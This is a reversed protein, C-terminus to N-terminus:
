CEKEVLRPAVKIPPKFRKAAVKVQESFSKNPRDLPEAFISPKIKAKVVQSIPSVPSKAKVKEVPICDEKVPSEAVFGKVVTPTEGFPSVPLAGAQEALFASGLTLPARPNSVAALLPIGLVPNAIRPTDVPFFPIIPTVVPPIVPPVVVVPPIVVPPVVVPPEVPKVKGVMNITIQACDSGGKGDSVTYTFVDQVKRGEALAQAVSNPQYIYTGDPKLTLTGYTGVIPQNVNAQEATSARLGGSAMPLCTPDDAGPRVAVVTLVDNRDRDGDKVDGLTNGRVAEGDNLSMTPMTSRVDDRAVPADNQGCVNITITTTSLAGSPDCVTYSFVDTVTEGASLNQAAENPQYIYTGNAAVTITGWQGVVASGVNGTVADVTSGAKIGAVKLVGGDPDSDAIDGKLNGVVASGDGLFDDECVDRM